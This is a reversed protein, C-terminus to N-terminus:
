PVEVRQTITNQIAQGRPTLTWANPEGKTHGEGQNEVLECKNLRRLLRSM